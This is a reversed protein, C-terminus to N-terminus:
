NSRFVSLTKIIPEGSENKQNTEIQIGRREGYNYKKTMETEGMVEYRSNDSRGNKTFVQVGKGGNILFVSGHSPDWTGGENGNGYRIIDGMKIFSQDVPTFKNSDKLINDFEDKEAIKGNPDIEGTTAMQVAAGWCNNKTLDDTYNHNIVADEVNQLMKGIDGKIDEMEFTNTSNLTNKFDKGFMSKLEKNSLGTESKFKRWNDSENSKTLQLNVTKEAPGNELKIEWLGNPDKYNIPNDFSYRYPTWSYAKEALPDVSHWRGLQPDYM